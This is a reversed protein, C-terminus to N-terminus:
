APRRSEPGDPPSGRDRVIQLRQEFVEHVEHHFANLRIRAAAIGTLCFVRPLASVHGLTGVEVADEDDTGAGDDDTLGALEIIRSSLRTLSQFFLAIPDDQHVGIRRGDHSVRLAGVGDVDLRDIPARDCRMM